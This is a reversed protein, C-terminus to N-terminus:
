ARFCTTFLIDTVTGLKVLLSPEIPDEFQEKTVPFYWKRHKKKRFLKNEESNCSGYM